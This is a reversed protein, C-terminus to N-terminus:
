WSFGLDLEWQDMRLEITQAGPVELPNPGGVRKAPARLIAAHFASGNELTRSLGFTYHEEVVAPAVISPFVGGETVPQNGTSIGFRYTWPGATAVVVGLKLVTMDEWGFGAGDASGLPATVLNPLLPNAISRVSGYEIRSADLAVVVKPSVQLAVGIAEAAPIDFDGQEAFIGSYRDFAQMRIRAQYSAGLSLRPTPRALYGLKWSVGFSEDYGQNSVRSPDGSFAAFAETGRIEFRQFAFIATIGLAHQKCAGLARSYTSAVFLQALDVGTPSSGGFTAVPYDTNMGGNGFVALGVVNDDRVKWSAGFHPVVFLNSGSDVHGPALGFTGPAGSPNGAVTYGRKPNFLSLGVDYRAGVFALGAPNDAAALADQPLAVGVGAVGKGATGYAHSFYGTTAHAPSSRLFAFAVLALLTRLRAHSV